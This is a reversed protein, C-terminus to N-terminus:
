YLVIFSHFRMMISQPKVSTIINDLFNKGGVIGTWKHILASLRYSTAPLLDHSSVVNGAGDTLTVDPDGQTLSTTAESNM